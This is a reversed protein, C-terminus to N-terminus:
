PAAGIYNKTGDRGLHAYVDVISLHSIFHTARKQAYPAPTYNQFRLEPGGMADFGDSALYDASGRPSLYIDAGTHRCIAVLRESRAGGGELESAHLLGTKIDLLACISAIFASNMRALSLDGAGYAHDFADLMDGRHPSWAYAQALTQRLKAFWEARPRTQAQAIAGGLTARDVPLSLVHERGNVLIRNRTQWSQKEIQVTDLLVFTDASAILHFYGSWPLFTPQMIATVRRPAVPLVIEGTVDEQAPADLSLM